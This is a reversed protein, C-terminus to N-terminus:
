RLVSLEGVNHLVRVDMDSGGANEKSWSFAGAGGTGCANVLCTQKFM